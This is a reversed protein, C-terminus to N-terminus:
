QPDASADARQDGLRQEHLRLRGARRHSGRFELRRPVRRREDCRRRLVDHRGRRGGCGGCGGGGVGGHKQNEIRAAWGLGAGHCIQAGIAVCIPSIRLKPDIQNGREDGMWHLLVQHMPLGHHFLGCNERYAPVIHDHGRKLALAAGLSAAEQGKSQPYTGMRGSRQLRYAAEDLERSVLMEHYLDVLSKDDLVDRVDAALSEDLTGDQHLIELREVTQHHVTTVPMLTPLTPHVDKDARRTGFRCPSRDLTYPGPGTLHVAM